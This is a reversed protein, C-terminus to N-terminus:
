SRSRQCALILNVTDATLRKNAARPDNVKSKPASLTIVSRGQVRMQKLLSSDGQPQFVVEIVSAGTLNLDSDADLTKASADRIAYGKDIQQDKDFFFDMDASRVEASRGEQMTRLYSNGRIEVRQIQKKDTLAANLTDGSLLDRDQETTVGGSFSIQQGEHLFVAHAARIIVPRARSSSKAKADKLAQPAVTIEVDKKLELKKSKSEVIAGTSRGSVNEREFTIPADTQAVESDKTAFNYAILETNVKLADKTEIKVSGQFTLISNAQDYIAKNASIQDPKDGVSPYVSLQVRDLEHHGDSFTIDRAARIWLYLRDGKMMRQEYGEIIGTIEKSLEPAESRLRFPTNNRLRYYSIAVFVLAAVLVVLAGARVVLPARARLGIAFARKRNIEQM